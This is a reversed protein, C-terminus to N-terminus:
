RRKQFRINRSRRDGNVLLGAVRGKSDRQFEISGLVADLSGFEDRWLWKLPVTGRRRHELQLAGDKVTVRYTTGLEESDYDGAFLELKSPPRLESGGLRTASEAGYRLSSVKGAADREFIIAVEDDERQLVFERESKASLPRPRQQTTQVLLVAGYRQINVHSGSSLRYTGAYDDLMNTTPATTQAPRAESRAPPSNSAPEKDLFIEAIKIVANQADVAPIDSNALVVIGFKQEPYYADYTNFSAWGGSHTFFPLGRFRDTGTLIGFAYRVKTGDNLVGGTRMLSMAAKGGVTAEDFNIMWRAFDDVTSFLSSSGLAVLNNPTSRYSGDPGLTYGTARNAIVEKYDDRFHTNTMGLPRFLREDTWTRFSRGTVRQVMEALLNYGTNSYLHESGPMFNLTRQNAAMTLINKFSIPDDPRWGAVSLTGGWDRIGSTHHLLHDVTITRGFDPLEPIYKRIDDSLKIKGETVLMAVALGTFQKSLSAVDFVTSTTIPIRHELNAIGYGKHFIVKGDRVIAVALGPSPKQNLDAFLADVRGAKADPTDVARVGGRALCAAFFGVFLAIWLSSTKM